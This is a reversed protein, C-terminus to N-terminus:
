KKVEVKELLRYQKKILFEALEKEQTRVLNRKCIRKFTKGNIILEDEFNINEGKPIEPHVLIWEFIKEFKKISTQTSLKKDKESKQKQLLAYEQLTLVPM